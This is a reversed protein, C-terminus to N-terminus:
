NNVNQRKSFVMQLIEGIQEAMDAKQFTVFRSGGFPYWYTLQYIGLNYVSIISKIGTHPM